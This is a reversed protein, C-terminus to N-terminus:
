SARRGDPRVASTSGGEDSEGPFQIAPDVFVRGLRIQVRPSASVGRWGIATWTGRSAGGRCGDVPLLGVPLGVAFGLDFRANVQGPGGVCFM